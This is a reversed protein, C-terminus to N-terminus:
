SEWLAGRDLMKLSDLNLLIASCSFLPTHSKRFFFKSPSHLRVHVWLNTAYNGPNGALHIVGATKPERRSFETALFYCAAKSSAYLENQSMKLKQPADPDDLFEKRVGEKPSSTDVM